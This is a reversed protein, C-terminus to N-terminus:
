DPGGWCSYGMLMSVRAHYGCMLWSLFGRHTQGLSGYTLKAPSSLRKILVYAFYAPAPQQTILQEPELGSLASRQLQRRTSSTPLVKSSFFTDTSSEQRQGLSPCRVPLPDGKCAPWEWRGLEGPSVTEEKRWTGVNRAVRAPTTWPPSTNRTM